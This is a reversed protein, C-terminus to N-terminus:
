LKMDANVIMRDQRYAMHRRSQSLFPPNLPGLKEVRIFFFLSRAKLRSVM